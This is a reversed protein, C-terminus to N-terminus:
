SKKKRLTHMNRLKDQLKIHIESDRIEKYFPLTGCILLVLTLFSRAAYSFANINYIFDGKQFFSTFISICIIFAFSFKWRNPVYYLRNSVIQNFIGALLSSIATAIGAGLVGYVPILIYNLVVNAAASLVFAIFKWYSQKRISPGPTFYGGLHYILSGCIIWPIYVGIDIYSSDPRIITLLPSGWLGLLIICAIGSASVVGFYNAYKKPASPDRFSSLVYPGWAILFGAVLTEYIGAVSSSVAFVGLDKFSTMSGLFVRDLSRTFFAFINLGLLPWSYHFLEKMKERSIYSLKIYTKFCYNSITGAVLSTLIGIILIESARFGLLLIGGVTLTAGIITHFFSIKLFIMSQFSWKLMNSGVYHISQALCMFIILFTFVAPQQIDKFIKTMFPTSLLIIVTIGLLGLFSIFISSAVYGRKDEMDKADIFFRPLGQDAVALLGVTSCFSAITNVLSIYGYDSPTLYAITVPATILYVLRRGWNAFSYFLTDKFLSIGEKNM